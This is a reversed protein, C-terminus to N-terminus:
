AAVVAVKYCNELGVVCRIVISSPSSRALSLSPPALRSADFTTAIVLLHIADPFFRISRTSSSQLRFLVPLNMFSCQSVHPAPSVSSLDSASREPLPLDGESPSPMRTPASRSESQFLEQHMELHSLTHNPAFFSSPDSLHARSNSCYANAGETAAPFPTIRWSSTGHAFTVFCLLIGTMGDCQQPKPYRRRKEQRRWHDVGLAVTSIWGEDSYRQKQISKGQCICVILVCYKEGM